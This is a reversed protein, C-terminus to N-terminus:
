LSLTFHGDMSLTLVGTCLVDRGLLMQFDPSGNGAFENVVLGKRSVIDRGLPITLDILYQDVEITHTASSMIAKGIPLLGLKEVVQAAICSASAGTDILATIRLASISANEAPNIGRAIM